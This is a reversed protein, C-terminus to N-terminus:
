PPPDERRLIRLDHGPGDHLRGVQSEQFPRHCRTWAEAVGWSLSIVEFSNMDIKEVTQGLVQQPIPAGGFMGSRKGTIILTVIVVVIPVVVVVIKKREM